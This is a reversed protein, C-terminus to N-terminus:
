ETEQREREFREIRSRLDEVEKRTPINARKLAEAVMKEVREGWEKKMRKSKEMLDGLLEKGEKESLEGKKVIEDVAEEIKETTLVALGAGVLVAKKIFELMATRRGERGAGPLM